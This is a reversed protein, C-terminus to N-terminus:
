AHEIPAGCYECCPNNYDNNQHCYSCSVYNLIALIGYDDALNRSMFNRRANEYFEVPLVDVTMATACQTVYPRPNLVPMKIEM